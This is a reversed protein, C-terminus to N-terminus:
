AKAESMSQRTANGRMTGLVMKRALPLVLDLTKGRPPAAMRGAPNQGGVTWSESVPRAIEQPAQILPTLFAM